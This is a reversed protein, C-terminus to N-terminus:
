QTIGTAKLQRLAIESAKRVFTNYEAPGKWNDSVGSNRRYDQYSEDQMAKKVADAIKNQIEIPMGKPGYLGRVQVWSNDVHVGQEDFTPIDPLGELRETNITGLAKLRGSEFFGATPGGNSIGLDLHGGLVSTVTETSSNFGLWNFEFDAEKALMNMAINYMAGVPGYGGATLKGPNKKAYDILDNLSNFPSDKSVFFIVPDKQVACVWSFGDISFTGKLNTQMATLHTLTNIALTQGDPKASRVKAMQTAGGGGPANIIVVPQGIVRSLANGLTRGLIDPNGGPKSHAIIEVPGTPWDAEAFAFSNFSVTLAIAVFFACILYRIKKGHDSTM